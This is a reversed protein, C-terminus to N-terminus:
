RSSGKWHIFCPFTAFVWTGLAGGGENEGLELGLLSSVFYIPQLDLPVTELTEKLLMGM